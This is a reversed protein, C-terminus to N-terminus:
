ISVAASSKPRHKIMISCNTPSMLKIQADRACNERCQRKIQQWKPACVRRVEPQASEKEVRRSATKPINKKEEKKKKREKKKRIQTQTDVKNARTRKKPANSKKTNALRM